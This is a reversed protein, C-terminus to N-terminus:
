RVASQDVRMVSLIRLPEADDDAAANCADCCARLLVDPRLSGTLKSELAFTVVAGALEMEGVLFEDVRLVKEKKKRIVTVEDPVPFTVPPKSLLARYTAIPYAASAAPAHPEIYDCAKVMLDPVSADQLAKLAEDAPVYRTLQLDVLEHTGGVGVPLAAGFAIKMHPSFGQSVAFPLGARRVARELARAVELHSLLALRGQKCFTVRLRFQNPDSM